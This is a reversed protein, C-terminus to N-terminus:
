RRRVRPDLWGYALDLFLNILLVLVTIYLLGGQVVPIDRNHVAGIVLQGIGPLTFVQEIIVAGSVLAVFQLGIVTIIPISANRLGHKLVIKRTPVGSAQLSRVFDRRLVDSFAARMQRSLSAVAPISIAVVPLILRKAWEGPAESFAVWGSSPLLRFWVAFIVVLILGIWFNPIAMGISTITRQVRDFRGGALVALVGLGVGLVASTLTAVTALTVTVVARQGLARTVSQGNVWSVGLDGTAADRLWTVYQQWLPDNLGLEERTQQLADETAQDGLITQAADGPLLHLAFFALTAVVLLMPVAIAVRKAVFVAM